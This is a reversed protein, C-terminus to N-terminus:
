KRNKNISKLKNLNKVIMSMILLYMLKSGVPNEINNITCCQDLLLKFELMYYYSKAIWQLSKDIPAFIFFILKSVPSAVNKKINYM